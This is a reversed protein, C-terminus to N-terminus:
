RRTVHILLKVALRHDLENSRAVQGPAPSAAQITNRQDVRGCVSGRAAIHWSPRATESTSQFPTPTFRRAYARAKTRPRTTRPSRAWITGCGVTQAWAPGVGVGVAVAVLVAVPVAVGVAVGVAVDVAVAVAISVAVAVGVAVAVFVVVVVAVLAVAV